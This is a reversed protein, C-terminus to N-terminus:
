SSEPPDAPVSVPSEDQPTDAGSGEEAEEDEEEEQVEELPPSLSVLEGEELGSLIQIMRKDDLGVEVPQARLGTETPVYVVPQGAVRVVCQIPVYLTDELQDIVIEAKCSMGTRLKGSNGVVEVITNYVKLDPNLWRSQADPLVAIKQVRGEFVRDPLANTTIRVPLGLDVHELMSEHIKIDAVLNGTTPLRFLDQRERVEVGEDLPEQGDRMDQGTTGYVVMGARPARVVCAALQERIDRLQQEDRILREKRSTMYAQADVVNAEAENKARELEFRKQNVASMLEEITRKYTFEALLELEGAAVDEDLVKRMRDLQDAELESQTIYGEKQLEVSFKLRDMAREVEANAVLINNLARKLELKYQGRLEALLEQFRERAQLDTRVQPALANIEGLISGELAADLFRRGEELGEYEKASIGAYKELDLLALRYAVEAAEINAQGQKKAIELRQEANVFDAKSTEVEIEEEVEEDAWASADLEILKQGAEVQTGEEIIWLVKTSGEVENKIVVADSSRISGTSHVSITLPGRMAAILNGTTVEKPKSAGLTFYAVGAVALILIALGAWKKRGSARKARKKKEAATANTPESM